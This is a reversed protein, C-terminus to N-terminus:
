LAVLRRLTLEGRRLVAITVVAAVAHSVWMWGQDHSHASSGAVADPVLTRVTHGHHASESVALGSGAGTGVEFLLHFALQSLAVSASLLVLSPTRRTLLVCLVAAFALALALGTVGPAGGGAAVHSFAAAFTAVAAAALGRTVRTTRESM